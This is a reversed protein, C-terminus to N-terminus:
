TKWCNYITQYLNKFALGQIDKREFQVPTEYIQPTLELDQIRFEVYTNRLYKDIEERPKCTNNSTLNNCPFIDLRIYSYDDTTMYGRLKEFNADDYKLCYLNDMPVDKFIEKHNSGFKNLQCTELYM